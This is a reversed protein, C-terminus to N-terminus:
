ILQNSRLDTLRHKDNIPLILSLSLIRYAWIQKLYFSGHANWDPFVMRSEKKKELHVGDAEEREFWYLIM